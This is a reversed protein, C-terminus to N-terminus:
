IKRFTIPMRFINFIFVSDIKSDSNINISLNISSNLGEHLFLKQVMKNRVTHSTHAPPTSEETRTNWM